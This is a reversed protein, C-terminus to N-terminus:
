ASAHVVVKVYYPQHHIRRIIPNDQYVFLLAFCGFNALIVTPLLPRFFRNCPSKRHTTTPSPPLLFPHCPTFASVPKFPCWCTFQCFHSPLCQHLSYTSQSFFLGLFEAKTQLFHVIFIFKSSYVHSQVLWRCKRTSHILENHNTLSCM